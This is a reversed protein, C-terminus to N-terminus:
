TGEKKRLKINYQSLLASAFSNDQLPETQYRLTTLADSYQFSLPFKINDRNGLALVVGDTVHIRPESRLVVIRKKRGHCNPVRQV